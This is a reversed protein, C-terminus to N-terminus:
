EEAGGEAAATEVPGGLSALLEAARRRLNAPTQADDVLASLTERAALTEGAKIQSLAKLELASYRWPNDDRAVEDIQADLAASDEQEFREQTALVLSLERYLQPIDDSGALQQLTEAKAGAEGAAERAEAARLRALLAYGTDGEQALAAFADAAEAPRDARLLETAEAFRRAEDARVSEQYERWAVGAGTGLVIALAAGVIYSGYQKWLKM